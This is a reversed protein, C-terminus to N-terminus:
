RTKCQARPMPFGYDPGSLRFRAVYPTLHGHDVRNATEAANGGYQRSKQHQRCRCCRGVRLSRGVPLRDLFDDPVVQDPVRLDDHLRQLFQFPPAFDRLLFARPLGDDGMPGGQEVVGARVDGAVGFAVDGDDLEEVVAARVALAAQARQHRRQLVVRVDADHELLKWDQALFRHQCGRAAM